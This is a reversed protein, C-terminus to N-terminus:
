RKLRLLLLLLGAGIALPMFKQLGLSGVFGGAQPAMVFQAAQGAREDREAFMGAVTGKALGLLDAFIDDQQSVIDQVATAVEPTFESYGGSLSYSSGQGVSVGGPGAFVSEAGATIGETGEAIMRLDQQTTSAYSKSGM